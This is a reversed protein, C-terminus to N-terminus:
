LVDRKNLNERNIQAEYDKDNIPSILEKNDGYIDELDDIMLKDKNINSNNLILKLGKIQNQQKQQIGNIKDVIENKFMNFDRGLVNANELSKEYEEDWQLFLKIGIRKNIINNISKIEQVVSNLEESNKNELFKERHKLQQKIEILEDKLEENVNLKRFVRLRQTISDRLEEM